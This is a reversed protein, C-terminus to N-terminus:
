FFFTLFHRRNKQLRLPYRTSLSTTIHFLSNEVKNSEDARQLVGPTMCLTDDLIIKPYTKESHFLIFSEWPCNKGRKKKPLWTTRAWNDM